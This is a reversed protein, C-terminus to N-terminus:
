IKKLDKLVFPRIEPRLCASSVLDVKRKFAKELYNSLSLYNILDASKDFDVLVDIDSNPKQENRAFSGFLGIINAQYNKHINNKQKKLYEFILKPDM